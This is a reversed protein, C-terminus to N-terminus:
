PLLDHIHYDPHRQAFALARNHLDHIGTMCAFYKTIAKIGYYWIGTDADHLAPLQDEDLGINREYIVSPLLNHGKHHCFRVLALTDDQFPHKYLEYM